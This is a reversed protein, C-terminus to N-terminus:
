SSGYLAMGYPFWFATAFSSLAFWIFFLAYTLSVVFCISLYKYPIMANRILCGIGLIYIFFLYLCIRDALTSLFFSLVVIIGLAITGRFIM